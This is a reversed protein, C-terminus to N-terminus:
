NAETTAELKAVAKATSEYLDPLNEKLYEILKIDHGNIKALDVKELYVIRVLEAVPKPMNRGAEYRCGGSQTVGVAQWFETQNLGLKRRLERLQPGTLLAKTTRYRAM